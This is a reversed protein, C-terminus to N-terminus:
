AHYIIGASCIINEENGSWSGDSQCTRTENGILEYGGNCTIICIDQFSPLGDGRLGCNVNGNNPTILLPCSVLYPKLYTVCVYRGLTNVEEVSAKLVVGPGMM